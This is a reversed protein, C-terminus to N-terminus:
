PRLRPSGRGASRPGAVSATALPDLWSAPETGFRQMTSRLAGIVGVLEDERAALEPRPMRRIAALEVELVQLMQAFRDRALHASPM